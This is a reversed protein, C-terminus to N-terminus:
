FGRQQMFRMRKAREAYDEPESSGFKKQYVENELSEWDVEAILLAHEIESTCVGKQQLEQRIRKPGFGRQSRHRIYSEAFREDSQWGENLLAEVVPEALASHEPYKKRLKQILEMRSQERMSLLKVAHHKLTKRHESM